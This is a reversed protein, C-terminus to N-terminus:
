GIVSAPLTTAVNVATLMAHMQPQLLLAILRRPTQISESAILERLRDLAGSAITFTTHLFFTLKDRLNVRNIM